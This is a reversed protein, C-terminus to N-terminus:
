ERRGFGAARVRVVGLKNVADVEGGAQEVARVGANTAGSRFVVVYSSTATAEEGEQGSANSVSALSAFLAVLAVLAFLSLLRGPKFETFM